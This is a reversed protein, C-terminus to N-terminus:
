TGIVPVRWVRCTQRSGTCAQPAVLRHFLNAGGFDGPQPQSEDVELSETATSGLTGSAGSLADQLNGLNGWNTTFSEMHHKANLSTMVLQTLEPPDHPCVSTKMKTPTKKKKSTDGATSEQSCLFM